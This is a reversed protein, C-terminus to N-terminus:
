QKQESDERYYFPFEEGEIYIATYNPNRSANYEHEVRVTGDFRLIGVGNWPFNYSRNNVMQLGLQGRKPHCTARLATPFYGQVLSIKNITQIFSLYDFAVKEARLNLKRALSPNNQYVFVSELEEESFETLNMNHMTSNVINIIHPDTYQYHLNMTKSDLYPKMYQTLDLKVEQHRQDFYETNSILESMDITKIYNNLELDQIISALGSQYLEAQEIPENFIPAYVIGDTILTFQAGPEYIREIEACLSYIQTLSGVEALDPTIRRVKLPNLCKVPFSPLIFEIPQNNSVANEIRERYAPLECDLFRKPGRRYKTLGIIRLISDEVNSLRQLPRSAIKQDSLERWASFDFESIYQSPTDFKNRPTFSAESLHVQTYSPVIM